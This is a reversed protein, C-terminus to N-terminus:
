CLRDGHPLHYRITSRGPGSTREPEVEELQVLTSLCKEIDTPEVDKMSKYVDRLSAGKPEHRAVQYLVRQQLQDFASENALLRAQHVSERWTECIEMAKGLHRMEIVPTAVDQQWDLATLIMALKLCHVPFRGYAPWLQQNLQENVLDYSVAKNYQEWLEYVGRAMSVTKAEAQDPWQARPLREYLETLKGIIESPEDVDRARQWDPRGNSALIAFRPWWGMAWLREANMHMALARPTTAGILNLYTNRCVVRGQGRTSKVFRDTCDYFRLLDEILGANYDKGAQALLGSMEDLLWGRQAAFNRELGWQEQEEFPLQDFLQPERGAFDSLLAEPTTTQAALLHRFARSAVDRVINFATTKRYLTSPAIWVVFLNPHIDGFPMKLVLRRAIAVAALWLAGSEHFSRPTMPSVASAYDIYTNIWAGAGAGDPIEVPLAPIPEEAVPQVAARIATAPSCARMEAQIELGREGLIDCCKILMALRADQETGAEHLRRAIFQYEGSMENVYDLVPFVPDAIAKALVLAQQGNLGSM